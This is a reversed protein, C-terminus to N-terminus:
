FIQEFCVSLSSLVLSSLIYHASFIKRACIIQWARWPWDLACFKFFISTLRAPALLFTGNCIRLRQSPPKELRAFKVPFFITWACFVFKGTQALFVNQFIKTCFSIHPPESILRPPQFIKCFNLLPPCCNPM